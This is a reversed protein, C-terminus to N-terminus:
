RALHATVMAALTLVSGSRILRLEITQGVSEPGLQRAVDGPHGTPAGGVSVLIDGALVGAKGAPGDRSVRMVMLGRGQGGEATIAEPLAVPHLALGLWGREVRGATLLPTLVREITAAPIVLARGRPGATSMGLLGGSADLVPGGEEASSITLDLSIRHDIRGGGLSHWAPGLARVVGMRVITGGSGDAGFVLALAGLRPEVAAPLDVEVPQQLRFAVVNTGRDRGAVRAQAVRGDALVIEAEETKPVVQESAVAVDARWLTGSRPQFQTGRIGIVFGQAVAARAVLADSLQALTDQM